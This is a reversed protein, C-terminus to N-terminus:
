RIGLSKVFAIIKWRDVVDVTTALPPQRGEPTGYSVEKFLAGPSASQVKESRLDRIPPFFSQGVTGLGDHNNGHCHVCYKGYLLNGAVVVAPDELPIPSGIRDGPTSRYLTEGGTLPVSGEEVALIPQEHPRVAPTEWMRGYECGAPLVLLILASIFLHVSRM